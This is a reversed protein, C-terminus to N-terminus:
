IAMPCKKFKTAASSNYMITRDFFPGLNGFCIGDLSPFGGVTSFAVM